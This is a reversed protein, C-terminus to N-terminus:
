RADSDGPEPIGYRVVVATVDDPGGAAIAADALAECQEAATQNSCLMATMREVTVMDSLGNTCLLLVDGDMLPFRDIDIQPGTPNAGGLTDTVVHHLDRVAASIDVLPARFGLAARTHDHTLQMLQRKRLLYARSHGVHALFLDRGVSYAVTLTSQLRTSDNAATHLMTSDVARYFREGRAMVERAVTDDIRM